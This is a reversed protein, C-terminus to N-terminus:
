RKASYTSRMAGSCRGSTTTSPSIILRTPAGPLGSSCASGIGPGVVSRRDASARFYRDHIVKLM